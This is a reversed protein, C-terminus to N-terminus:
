HEPEEEEAGTQAAKFAEFADRGSFFHDNGDDGLMFYFYDHKTPNLAAKLCSLGPNCIPGVPLGETVYTNYPSDIAIDKNTLHEKREELLYQVTSDMQLHGDIDDHNPDKLRNYIVGAIDNRDSGTTEKEIISAMIVIEDVSFGSLQQQSRMTSDFRYYFNDLLKTIVSKASTGKYFQYTDPFLYGELRAAGTRTVGELFPYDFEDEAASRNLDEARCVGAQELLQFTEKLTYGEPITVDATERVASVKRFSNLLASYDMETNLQYTGTTIQSAKGTMAAFTKFLAPYEILGHAKLNNAVDSITQDKSITISVTKPTKNLSLVDNAWRWGITAILFSAALVGAVYVMVALISEPVTLTRRRHDSRRPAAPPPEEEPQPDPASQDPTPPTSVPLRTLEPDWSCTGDQWPFTPWPAPGTEERSLASLEEADLTIEDPGDSRSVSPGEDPFDFVSNLIEDPILDLKPQETNPKNEESM